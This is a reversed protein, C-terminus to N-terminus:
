AGSKQVARGFGLAEAIDDLMEWAVAILKRSHKSHVTWGHAVLIQAMDRGEVCLAVLLPFAKIQLRGPVRRQVPLAVREPGRAVRGHRRDISWGNAVAEILRIREAHKIRTTAGGDSQGGSTDGGEGCSGAVSGIREYAGAILDAARRRPDNVPLVALARAPARVATKHGPLTMAGAGGGRGREMVRELAVPRAAMGLPSREGLGAGARQRRAAATRIIAANRGALYLGARGRDSPSEIELRMM